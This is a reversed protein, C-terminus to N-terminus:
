ISVRLKKLGRLGLNARWEPKPEALALNPLRDLLSRFAIRGEMRALPAGFCFHAAWGFALHRNDRREFDLAGPDAFREPDRNGAAMVAMVAQGKKIVRGAMPTDERCIRATHQSPTEWRLLEEVASETIEPRERLERMKEPQRFLTYLGSAILNTTTEQGGVMTVIANAIAEDESLRAGDIEAEVLSKVLGDELSGSRILDRFYTVMAETTGLVRTIGEPNHQFNGLMEAYDATWAKLQEWDSEPVGMLHAFVMAPFPESFDALVDFSGTAEAKAVAADILRGAVSVVREELAEVRRPTFATSCLKRLITHDPPDLFLMQKVMVRAIPEIEGLGLARMTEVSPTRNASFHHLVTLVDAYRTVVWTHLYPDWYVPDEARLRDYLLHPDAHFAPDLLRVMSLSPDSVPKTAM